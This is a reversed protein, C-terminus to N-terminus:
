ALAQMPAAARVGFRASEGPPATLAPVDNVVHLGGLSNKTSSASPAAPRQPSASRSAHPSKLLSPDGREIVAIREKTRQSAVKDVQQRLKQDKMWLQEDLATVAAAESRFAATLEARMTALLRQQLGLVDEAMRVQFQEFHLDTERKSEEVRSNLVEFLQLSELELLRKELRSTEAVIKQSHEARLAAGLDTLELKGPKDRYGEVEDQLKRVSVVVSELERRLALLQHEREHVAETSHADLRRLLDAHEGM